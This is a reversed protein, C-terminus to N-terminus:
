LQKLQILLPGGAEGTVENPLRKAILQYFKDLRDPSSQAWEFLAEWGGLRDFVEDMAQVYDVATESDSSMGEDGAALPNDWM